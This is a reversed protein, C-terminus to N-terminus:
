LLELELAALHDATYVIAVIESTECARYRVRCRYRWIESLIQIESSLIQASFGSYVILM